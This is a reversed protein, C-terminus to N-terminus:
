RQGVVVEPRHMSAGVKVRSTVSQARAILKPKGMTEAVKAFGKTSGAGSYNMWMAFCRATDTRLTALRKFFLAEQSVLLDQSSRSPAM